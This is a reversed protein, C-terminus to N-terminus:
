EQNAQPPLPGGKEHHLSAPEAFHLARCRVLSTIILRITNDFSEGQNYHEILQATSFSEGTNLMELMGTIRKTHCSKITFNLGNAAITIVDDAGTLWGVPYRPDICLKEDVGPAKAESDPPVPFLGDATSYMLWLHQLAGAIYGSNAYQIFANHADLLERPPESQSNGLTYARCYDKNGFQSALIRQVHAGIIESLNRGLIASIQVVASPQGDSKILHWNSSPWYLANGPEIVMTTAHELHPDIIVPDLTSLAPDGENFYDEPWTYYTRKGMVGIAFVGTNDKHIGLPTVSYTGFFTDIDWRGTPLIGTSRNLGHVFDRLRFWLEPSSKELRHINIGVPNTGLDRHIREFFGQFSQDEHRPRYTTLPLFRFDQKSAPTPTQSIWFRDNATYEAPAIGTVVDFLGEASIINPDFLQQLFAPKKEWYTAAFEKWFSDPIRTHNM